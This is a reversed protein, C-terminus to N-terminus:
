FPLSDFDVGESSEYDTPKVEGDEEIYERADEQILEKLERNDM